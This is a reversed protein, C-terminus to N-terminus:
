ELSEAKLDKVYSQCGSIFSDSNGGCRLEDDIRNEDAWEYGAVHGGCDNTCVEGRFYQTGYASEIPVYEKRSRAWALNEELRQVCTPDQECQQRVEIRRVEAREHNFMMLAVVIGVTTLMM